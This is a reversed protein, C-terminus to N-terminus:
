GAAQQGMESRVPLVLSVGLFSLARQRCSREQQCLLSQCCPVPVTRSLLSWTANTDARGSCAALVCAHASVDLETLAASLAGPPGMPPWESPNKM